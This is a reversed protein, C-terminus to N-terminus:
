LCLFFYVFLYFSKCNVIFSFFFLIFLILFFFLLTFKPVFLFYLTLHLSVGEYVDPVWFHFPATGIKFLIAFVILCVGCYIGVPLDYFYLFFTSIEILNTTGVFSYIISIGFLLIGSAIGGLIFYKLGAEISLFSKKYTCTLIYLCFSILEISLYILLLDAANILFCMGFLSLLYIVFFELIINKLRYIYNFSVLLCILSLFVSIFKVTTNFLNIQLSDAFFICNIFEQDYFLYLELVLVFVTFFFFVHLLRNYNTHKIVLIYSILCFISIILFSEPIIFFIDEYIPSKFKELSSGLFNWYIQFFEILSSVKYIFFFFPFKM